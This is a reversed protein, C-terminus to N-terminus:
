IDFVAPGKEEYQEKSVWVDKMMDASAVISGGRWAAYKQYLANNPTVCEIQLQPLLSNIKTIIKQGLAPILSNGGALMLKHSCENLVDYDCKFLSKLIMLDLGLTEETQNEPFYLSNTANDLENSIEIAKLKRPDKDEYMELGKSKKVEEIFNDYVFERYSDSANSSLVPLLESKENILKKREQDIIYEGGYNKHVLPNELLYGKYVISSHVAQSGCELVIGETVSNGLSVLVPSPVSYFQKMGIQEFLIEYFQTTSIRQDHTKVWLLSDNNYKQKMETLLISLLDYNFEKDKCCRCYEKECKSEELFESLHYNNEVEMATKDHYFLNPIRTSPLDEGAIGAKIESMGVDLVITM